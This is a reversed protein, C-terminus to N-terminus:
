VKGFVAEIVNELKMGRSAKFLVVDEKKLEAKLAAALKQSDLFSFVRPVGGEAAAKATGESAKGLTFLVDINRSATFYGVDAHAKESFSGLEFMDGLVAIKRKGKMGRLVEIAAIASDPNSNYCDVICSIGDNDVIRQRMGAPKYNKLATVSKELPLGLVCGVAIASLANYINHTGAAPVSVSIEEGFARAKFSVQEATSDIDYAYIDVDRNAIGFRIIRYDESDFTLLMDNDGNLILPSGKKMGDLIELKAALINERSGLNEIHAVGVNTVLGITPCLARSLASIEGKHNMGMEIVAAEYSDDLKLLTLPMGINNNLNGQTKLTNFGSSVVCNVMEKTTTKGVSGTLGVVPINFKQRYHAALMLLATHTNEVVIKPLSTEIDCSVVVAAAASSAELEPIFDHGDFNSGKLAIFLGRPQPTRSDTFVSEITASGICKGGVANACELLTMQM